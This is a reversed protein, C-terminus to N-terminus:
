DLRIAVAPDVKMARFLPGVSAAVSAVLISMVAVIGTMTDFREVGYFSMQTLREVAVAGALGIAAGLAAQGMADRVFLGAINRRTAGLTIRIGIERTRLALTYSLVGFLGIAALLVGSAAFVVLVTMTFRPEAM